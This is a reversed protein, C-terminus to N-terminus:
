RVSVKVPMADPAVRVRDPGIVEAEVVARSVPNLVRIREGIAGPETAQGQATLAIGPSDLVMLVTAGKQVMSPRMLEALVLPQGAAIPRKVQMGIADDSRHVVEGRIVTMHVRAMHVDDARLVSGAPLRATAVPLEVTDDVRGIVRMHIPEMAEGAVSLLASFRGASADYELDSVVPRPDSEFPVLPPTFGALEVDCDVSAGSGVLASRVADMVDNRRLPRGPRELVARDSSSASRWDVGFQRAIASLQAAEVVIRGGAGPGPGLVKRANAGADDFLDSLLVVPAHLTTTMRLTASEAHVGGLCLALVALPLRTMIM